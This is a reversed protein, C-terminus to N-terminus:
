DLTKVMIVDNQADSGLQFVHSGVVEFGWREYFAIARDNHEWVGLWVTRRGRAVAEELCRRMLAAGLGRGIANWEVYIREIEIPDPGTVSPDPVGTRLKAYGGPASVGEAFALFFASDPDALEALLRKVSFADRVYADMDSGANSAAFTELFTREGLAALTEADAPGARRISFGKRQSHTHSVNPPTEM